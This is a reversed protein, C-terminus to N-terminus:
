DQPLPHLLVKNLAQLRDEGSNGPGVRQQSASPGLGPPPLQPAHADRSTSLCTSETLGCASGLTLLWLDQLLMLGARPAGPFGGPATIKLRHAAARQHAAPDTMRRLRFLSSSAAAETSSGRGVSGGGWPRVPVSRPWLLVAPCSALSTLAKELSLQCLSCASLPPCVARCALGILGCCWRPLPLHTERPQAPTVCPPSGM